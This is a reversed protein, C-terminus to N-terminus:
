APPHPLADLLAEIHPHVPRRERVIWMAGRLADLLAARAVRDRIGSAALALTARWAGRGSRRLWATWLRNRLTMRRRQDPFRGNPYPEHRVVLDDAYILEWGRELLDLALLSEEAGIHYRAHYGGAALFADRRVISAGALFSAIAFGPCASRKALPSTAMRGCAPDLHEEDGVLVRANLLGVAPHRELLEVAREIAGPQWWSDDDCFAVYRTEALRVGANRAAAGVNRPLAIVTVQPHLARVYEATGDASGNDVVIVPHPMPRGCVNQLTEHVRAKRDCTALVVTCDIM